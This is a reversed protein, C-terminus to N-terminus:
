GYVWGAQSSLSAYLTETTGDFLSRAARQVVQSMLLDPTTARAAEPLGPLHVSCSLPRLDRAILGSDHLLGERYVSDYGEDALNAVKASVEMSAFRDM